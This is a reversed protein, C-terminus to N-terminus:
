SGAQPSPILRPPNQKGFRKLLPVEVWKYLMICGAAAFATDLVVALAPPHLPGVRLYLAGALGIFIYHFLYISYSANGLLLMLPHHWFLTRWDTKELFICGAVILAASGGWLISHMSEYGPTQWGIDGLFDLYGTVVLISGLLFGSVALLLATGRGPTWRSYLVAVGVGALFELIIPNTYFGLVGTIPAQLSLGLLTMGGLFWGLIRAKYQIRALILLFFAVYFYWEFSLTWAQALIPATAGPYPLLVLSSVGQAVTPPQQRHRLFSPLWALLSLVTAVYYVPNIRRFRRWLFALAPRGGNLAGATRYIIFGSIVFFLDVGFTGFSSRLVSPQRWGPDFGGEQIIAHSLVVMIAALARLMQISALKM